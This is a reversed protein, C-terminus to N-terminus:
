LCYKGTFRLSLHISFRDRKQSQSFHSDSRKWYWLSRTWTNKSEQRGKEDERKENKNWWWRTGQVTWQSRSTKEWDTSGEVDFSSSWSKGPRTETNCEFANTARIMFIGEHNGRKIRKSNAHYKWTYKRHLSFCFLRRFVRSFYLSEQKAKLKMGKTVNTKVPSEDNQTHNM